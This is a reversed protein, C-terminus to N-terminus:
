RVSSTMCDWLLVYLGLSYYDQFYDLGYQILLPILSLCTSFSTPTTVSRKGASSHASKEYHGLAFQTSFYVMVYNM